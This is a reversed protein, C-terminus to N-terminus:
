RQYFEQERPGMERVGAPFTAMSSMGPTPIRHTEIPGASAVFGSGLRYGRMVRSRGARSEFQYAKVMKRMLKLVSEM